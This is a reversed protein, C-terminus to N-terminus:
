LIHICKIYILKACDTDFGMRKETAQHSPIAVNKRSLKNPTRYFIDKLYAYKNTSKQFLAVNFM